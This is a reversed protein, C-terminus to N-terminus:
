NYATSKNKIKLTTGKHSHQINTKYYIKALIKDFKQVVDILTKLQRYNRLKNPKENSQEFGVKPMFRKFEELLINRPYIHIQM